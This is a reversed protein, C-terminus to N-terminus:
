INMKTFKRTIQKNRSNNLYIYGWVKKIAKTYSVGPVGLINHMTPSLPVVRLICRSHSPGKEKAAAAAAMPRPNLSSVAGKAEDKMIETVPNLSSVAGKAEDKMIETVPNLSSVAGKAEGKM